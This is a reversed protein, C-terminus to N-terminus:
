LDTGGGAPASHGYSDRNSHGDRNANSDRNGDADSHRNRNRDAHSHCNGNADSHRHRNAHCYCHCNRDSYRHRNCYADSDTHAGSRWGRNSWHLNLDNVSYSFNELAVNSTLTVRNGSADYVLSAPNTSTVTGNANLTGDREFRTLQGGRDYQFGDAPGNNRQESKLRSMVDYAYNFRGVQGGAFTHQLWSIRNIADAPGYDTWTNNSLTRRTRNGNLDYLYKVVPSGAPQGVENLNDLQNRTTYSYVYKTNSPYLITARNGDSDYTYTVSHASNLGPIHVTQTETLKRNMQDYTFDIRAESNELVRTNSAADLTVTLPQTGDNWSFGSLRDRNDYSLTQTAGARNKFSDMNGGGDYHWSETTVANFSDLPYTASTKRNLLDYGYLYLKSRPDDMSLLTGSHSWVFSTVAAPSPDQPATQHTLRNMNDYSDYTIVRDSVDRVSMKNSAPDFTWNATYGASNRNAPVPDKMAFQRNRQDYFFESYNGTSQGAPDKVTKLNGANDYTYSTTAAEAGTGSTVSQKRLNADYVVTTVIKGSPSVTRRPNADTHSYDVINAGGTIDYYTRAVNPAPEPLVATLPRKYDDYTYSTSHNLEDKVSQLTGDDNYTKEITHRQGDLPDPPLTVRKLQGRLNYEFNTTYNRANTVSDIRHASNYTYSFTPRASAPIEPHAPDVVALHYPDRYELLRGNDDYTFTELGGSTLRHTLVVGLRDDYTFTESGGDPYNIRTVRKKQDRWYKVSLNREDTAKCLYYPSTGIRNNPDECSPGGYAYRVLARTSDSPTLPYVIETARGTIPENTVNTTNRNRDIILNPYSYDDYGQTAYQNNFDSAQKMLGGDYQFTRAPGANNPGDGRIENRWTIYPIYLRSVIQNTAGSRESEIQGVTVTVMPDGNSTAYTYAIRKMAGDYMPDYATSLLPYGNADGVNPGQYSYVAAAPSPNDPGPFYLVNYLYTYTATGPSFAAQGYIYKVTRGDSAHIYDIVVDQLGNSNTWETTHYVLQIWRGGPETVTNLSGDFNYALETKAGFPDYIAIAQYSYYYFCPPSLEPDCESKRTAKFEVKGGDPLILYALNTNLNLPVFRERVGPSSRYYTDGITQTFTEVRGDPFSVTYYSPQFSASRRTESGDVNWSYSHQWFGAAGFEFDGATQNRSNAVRSFALPYVGVGGAVVMDTVSRMANGTLPDYSCGTTVNGNFVGAPGTPNENGVQGRSSGPWFGLLIAIALPLGRRLNFLASM